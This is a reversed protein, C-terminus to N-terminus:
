FTVIISSLCGPNIERYRPVGYTNVMAQFPATFKNMKFHTPPTPWPQPVLELVTPLDTGLSSHAQKVIQAVQDQASALIWGETYFYGAVKERSLM